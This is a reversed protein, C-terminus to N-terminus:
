AAILASTEITPWWPEFDLRIPQRPADYVGFNKARRPWFKSGQAMSYIALMNGTEAARGGDTRRKETTETVHVADKM